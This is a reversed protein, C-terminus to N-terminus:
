VQALGPLRLYDQVQCHRLIDQALKMVAEATRRALDATLGYERAVVSPDAGDRVIRLFVCIRQNVESGPNEYSAELLECVKMWSCTSDRDFYAEFPNYNARRM